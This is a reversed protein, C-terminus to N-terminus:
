ASRSSLIESTGSVSVGTALEDGTTTDVAEVVAAGEVVADIEDVRLVATEALGAGVELLAVADAGAGESPEKAKPAPSRM